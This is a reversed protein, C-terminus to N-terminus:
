LKAKCYNLQISCTKFNSIEHHTSAEWNLINDMSLLFQAYCLKHVILLQCRMDFKVHQSAIIFCYHINSHTTEFFIIQELEKRCPFHGDRGLWLMLHSCYVELVSEYSRRNLAETLIIAALTIWGALAGVIAM